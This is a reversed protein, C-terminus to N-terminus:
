GDPLLGAASNVAGALDGGEWSNIIESLANELQAIREGSEEAASKKGPLRSSWGTAVDMYKVGNIFSARRMSPWDTYYDKAQGTHHWQPGYRTPVKVSVRPDGGKDDQWRLVTGVPYNDEPGILKLADVQRQAAALQREAQTLTQDAL